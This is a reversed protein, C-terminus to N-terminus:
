KMGYNWWEVNSIEEFSIVFISNGSDLREVNGGAASEINSIGASSIDFISRRIVFKSNGSDLREVNGGAASEINSIGRLRFISYRIVFLSNRIPQIWGNSIRCKITRYEFNWASSIDFISRRIVFKSNAGALLGGM